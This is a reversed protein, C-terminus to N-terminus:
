SRRAKSFCMALAPLIMGTEGADAESLMRSKVNSSTSM